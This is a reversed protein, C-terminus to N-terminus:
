LLQSFNERVRDYQEESMEIIHTGDDEKWHDNFSSDEATATGGAVRRLPFSVLGDPYEGDIDFADALEQETCTVALM